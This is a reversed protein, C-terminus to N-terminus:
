KQKQATINLLGRATLHSKVTSVDVDSPLKYTRHIERAITGHEDTRSEHRCHIHLEQGNVKVEIENPSFFQVDLKVEFKDGTSQVQVVGDHSQLPWDWTTSDHTIAIKSM